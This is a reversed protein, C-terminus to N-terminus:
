EPTAAPHGKRWPVSQKSANIPQNGSLQRNAASEESLEITGAKFGNKKLFYATIPWLQDDPVSGPNAAPM